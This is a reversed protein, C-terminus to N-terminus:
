LPKDAAATAKNFILRELPAALSEAYPAAIHQRDRYTLKGDIVSRCTADDCFMSTTDVYTMGMDSVARM